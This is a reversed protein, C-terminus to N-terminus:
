QGCQGSATHQMYIYTTTEKYCMYCKPTWDAMRKDDDGTTTSASWACRVSTHTGFPWIYYMSYYTHIYLISLFLLCVSISIIVFYSAFPLFFSYLFNCTQKFKIQHSTWNQTGLVHMRMGFHISLCVSVSATAM